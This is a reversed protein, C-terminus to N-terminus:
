FLEDIMALDNTSVGKMRDPKTEIRRGDVGSALVSCLKKHRTASRWWKTVEKWRDKRSCHDFFLRM